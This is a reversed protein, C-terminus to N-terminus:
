TADNKADWLKPLNGDRALDKYAQKGVEVGTKNVLGIFVYNGFLECYVVADVDIAIVRGDLNKSVRWNTMTTFEGRLYPEQDSVSYGGCLWPADFVHRQLSGHRCM